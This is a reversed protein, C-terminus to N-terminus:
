FASTTKVRSFWDYGRKMLHQLTIVLHNSLRVLKQSSILTPNPWSTDEVKMMIATRCRHSKKVAIFHMEYIFEAEYYGSFESESNLRESLNRSFSDTTQYNNAYKQLRKAPLGLGIM